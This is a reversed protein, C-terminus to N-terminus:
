LKSYEFSILDNYQASAEDSSVHKLEQGEIKIFYSNIDDTGVTKAIVMKNNKMEYFGYAGAGQFPKTDAYVIQKDKQSYRLGGYGYINAVQIVKKSSKDYTLILSFQWGGDNESALILEKQGDQNIDYMCYNVPKSDWDKTIQEYEKNKVYNKYEEDIGNQASSSVSTTSTTEKTSNNSTNSSTNNSANNGVYSYQHWQDSMADNKYVEFYFKEGDDPQFAVYNTYSDPYGDSQNLEVTYKGDCDLITKLEMGSSENYNSKIHFKGNPKLTITGYLKSEMTSVDSKYDGYKLTCKGVQLGKSEEEKKTIEQKAEDIKKITEKINDAKDSVENKVKDTVIESEKKYNKVAKKMRNKLDKKSMGVKFDIQKNEEVEPKIFITDFKSIKIESGDVTKQSIEKENKKITYDAELEAVNVKDSKDSKKSNDKLKSIINNLSSYSDNETDIKHIYWNYAEKEINYLFEIETPEKYSIFTVKDDDTIQYINVYNTDNKSYTMIMAPASNEEVECFQLKINKMKPSIGYKELVEDEDKEEAAENLYAYYTDGWKSGVSKNANLLVGIVIAAIIVIILLIAIIIFLMKKKM